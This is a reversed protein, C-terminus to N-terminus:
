QIILPDMFYFRHCMIIGHLLKFRPDQPTFTLKEGPNAWLSYEYGAVSALDNGNGVLKATAGDLLTGENNLVDVLMNEPLEEVGSLSSSDVHIQGKHHKEGKLYIPLPNSADIRM